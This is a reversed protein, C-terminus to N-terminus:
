KLLSFVLVQSENPGSVLCWPNQSSKLGQWTPEHGLRLYITEIVIKLFLFHFGQWISQLCCCLHLSSRFSPLFFSRSSCALSDREYDALFSSFLQGTGVPKM